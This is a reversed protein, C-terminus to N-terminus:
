NVSFTPVGKNDFLKLAPRDKEDVQLTARTQGAIDALSIFPSDDYRLGLSLRPNGKEDILQIIPVGSYVRLYMRLNGQQDFLQLRDAAVLPESEVISKPVNQGVFVYILLPTMFLLAFKLRRSQKEAKELRRALSLWPAEDSVESQRPAHITQNSVQTGMEASEERRYEHDPQRHTSISM